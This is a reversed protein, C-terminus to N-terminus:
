FHHKNTVNWLYGQLWLKGEIYTETTPPQEGQWARQTIVIKLDQDLDEDLTKMVTVTALWGSQGLFDDFTVLAKIKGLFEYDDRDWQPIPLFIAGQSVDFEDSLDDAQEIVGEDILKQIVEPQHPIKFVHREAPKANYAIGTLIFDYIEQAVYWDRNHIFRTDFFCIHADNWGAEIQAEFGGNWLHVRQITLNVQSGKSCFPYVTHAKLEELIPACVISLGMNQDPSSLLFPAMATSLVALPSQFFSGYGLLEKAVPVYTALTKDVHNNDSFPEWHSGLDHPQAASEDVFTSEPWNQHKIKNQQLAADHAKQLIVHALSLLKKGSTAFDVEIIEEGDELQSFSLVVGAGFKFHHVREGIEFDARSAM